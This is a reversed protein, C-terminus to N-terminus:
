ILQSIKEQEGELEFFVTERLLGKDTHIKIDLCLDYARKRLATAFKAWRPCEVYGKHKAM